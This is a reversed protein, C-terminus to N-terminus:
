EATRKSKWAPVGHEKLTHPWAWRWTAREEDWFPRSYGDTADAFFGNATTGCIQCTEISGSLQIMCGRIPIWSAGCCPCVKAMKMANM